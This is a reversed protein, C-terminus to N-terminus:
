FGSDLLTDPDKEGSNRLVPQDNGYRNLAMAIFQVLGALAFWVQWHSFLGTTIAFQGAMHLDAALRWLGLVSLTLAAPTLLAALALAIHQNKREKRRVHRGHQFRIRIVM